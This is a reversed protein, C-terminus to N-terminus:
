LNKLEEQRQKIEAKANKKRIEFDELRSELYSIREELWEKSRLIHGNEDRVIGRRAETEARIM